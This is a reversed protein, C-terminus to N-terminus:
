KKYRLSLVLFKSLKVKLLFGQSDDIYTLKKRYRYKCICYTEWKLCNYLLVIDVSVSNDFYWMEFSAAEVYRNRLININRGVQPNWSKCGSSASEFKRHVYNMSYERLNLVTSTCQMRAFTSSSCGWICIQGYM